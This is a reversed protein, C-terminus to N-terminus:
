RLVNITIVNSDLEYRTSQDDRAVTVNPPDRATTDVDSAPGNGASTAPHQPKSMTATTGKSHARGTM